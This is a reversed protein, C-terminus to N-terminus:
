PTTMLPNPQTTLLRYYPHSTAKVKGDASAAFIHVALACLADSILRCCSWVAASQLSGTVDSISGITAPTDITGADRPTSGVRRGSGFHQGGGLAPIWRSFGQSVRRILSDSM